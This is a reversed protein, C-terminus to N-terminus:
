HRDTPAERPRRRPAARIGFLRGKSGLPRRVTLEIMPTARFRGTDISPPVIVGTVGEDAAARVTTGLVETVTREPTDTLISHIAITEAFRAAYLVAYTGDPGDQRWMRLRGAELLRHTAQRHFAALSPHSLPSVTSGCALTAMADLTEELDIATTVLRTRHGGPESVPVPESTRILGAAAGHVTRHDARRRLLLTALNGAGALAVLDVVDWRPDRTTAEWLTAALSRPHDPDAILDLGRGGAVGSGIMRLSSVAVGWRRRHDVFCPAAGVLAGTDADRATVVHLNSTSGITDVWASLWPWSLFPSPSVSRAVLPDWEARLAAFGLRDVSEVVPAQPRAPTMAPEARCSHGSARASPPVHLITESTRRGSKLRTGAPEGPRTLRAAGWRPASTHHVVDAHEFGEEVNLTHIRLDVTEDGATGAKGDEFLEPEGMLLEGLQLRLEGLLAGSRTVGPEGQVPGLPLHEDVLLLGTLLLLPQEGPPERRSFGGVQAVLHRHEALPNRVTFVLHDLQHLQALLVVLPHGFELRLPDLHRGRLCAEFILDSRFPRGDVGLDGGQSLLTLRECGLHVRIEQLDVVLNAGALVPDSCGHQDVPDTAAAVQHQGGGLLRLREFRCRRPAQM